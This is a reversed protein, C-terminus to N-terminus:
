ISVGKAGKNDHVFKSRKTWRYDDAVNKGMAGIRLKDGFRGVLYAELEDKDVMIIQM